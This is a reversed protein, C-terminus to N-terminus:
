SPKVYTWGVELYLRFNFTYDRSLAQNAKIHLL